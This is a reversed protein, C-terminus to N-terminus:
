DTSITNNQRKYVDALLSRQLNIVKVRESVQDNKITEALTRNIQYLPLPSAVEYSAVNEKILQETRDLFQAVARQRDRICM